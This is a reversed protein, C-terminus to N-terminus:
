SQPPNRASAIHPVYQVRSSGRWGIHIKPTAGGLGHDCPRPIFFERVSSQFKHPNFYVASSFILDVMITSEEQFFVRCTKIRREKGDCGLLRRSHVWSLSQQKLDSVFGKLITLKAAGHLKHPFKHKALSLIAPPIGISVSGPLLVATYEPDIVL